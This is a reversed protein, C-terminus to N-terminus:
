AEKKSCNKERGLIRSAIFVALMGLAVGWITLLVGGLVGRRKISVTTEGRNVFILNEGSNSKGEYDMCDLDALTTNTNDYDTRIM